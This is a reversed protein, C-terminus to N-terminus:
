PFKLPEPYAIVASPKVKISNSTTMAMMAMRAAMNNGAKLLALAVAIRAWHALLRLCHPKAILIYAPSLRSKKGSLEPPM